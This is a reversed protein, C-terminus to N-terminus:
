TKYCTFVTDDESWQWFCQKQNCEQNCTPSSEYPENYNLDNEGCSGEATLWIPPLGIDYRIRHIKAVRYLLCLRKPALSWLSGYWRSVRARVSLFQFFSNKFKQSFSLSPRKGQSRPTLVRRCGSISTQLQLSDVGGVMALFVTKSQM